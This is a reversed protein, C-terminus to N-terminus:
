RKRRFISRWLAQGWKEGELYALRQNFRSPLLNFVRPITDLSCTRNTALYDLWYVSIPSNPLLYELVVTLSRLFVPHAAVISRHVGIRRMVTKVVQHLSLFEPGGIEYVRKRTSDDDLAWTM